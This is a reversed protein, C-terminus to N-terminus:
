AWVCTTHQTQPHSVCTSKMYKRQKLHLADNNLGENERKMLHRRELNDNGLCGVGREDDNSTLFSLPSRKTHPLFRLSENQQKQRKNEKERKM